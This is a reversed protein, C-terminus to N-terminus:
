KSVLKILENHFKYHLTQILNAGGECNNDLKLIAKAIEEPEAKDFFSINHRLDSTTVCLINNCVVQLNHKLYVILKSPFTHDASIVEDESYVHSSLGIDSNQLIEKYDQGTLFGLYNVRPEPYKKNVLEILQLMADLDKKSGFGAIDITYNQPLYEITQVAVFAAKRALEITGAYIIKKNITNGPKRVLEVPSYDGYAVIIKKNPASFKEKLVDSVAIIKKFLKVYNTEKLEFQANTKNLSFYMEELQLIADINKLKLILKVVSLYFMSHYVLLTDGKKVKILLYFFLFFKRFLADSGNYNGIRFTPMHTLYSDTLKVRLFGRIGTNKKELPAVMTVEEVEGLISSIYKIKPWGSPYSIYDETIDTSYFNLYYIM